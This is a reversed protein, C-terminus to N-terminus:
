KGEVLSELEIRKDHPVTIAQGLRGRPAHRLRGAGDIVREKNVPAHSHALRMEQLRDTM